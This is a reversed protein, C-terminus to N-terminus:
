LLANDGGDPWMTLFYPTMDAMTEYIEPLLPVFDGLWELNEDEEQPLRVLYPGFVRCHNTKVALHWYAVEGIPEAPAWMILWDEPTGETWNPNICESNPEYPDANAPTENSMIIASSLTVAMLATQIKKM